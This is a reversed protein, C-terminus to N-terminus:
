ESFIQAWNSSDWFKILQTTKLFWILEGGKVWYAREEEILSIDGIWVKTFIGARILFRLTNKLPLDPYECFHLYPIHEHSLQGHSNIKLNELSEGAIQPQWM